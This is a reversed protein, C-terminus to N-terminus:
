ARTGKFKACGCRHSPGVLGGPDTAAVACTRTPTVPGSTAGQKAARAISLFSRGSLSLRPTPDAFIGPLSLGPSVARDPRTQTGVLIQIPFTVRPDLYPKLRRYVGNARAPHGSNAVIVHHVYPMQAARQKYVPRARKPRQRVAQRRTRCKRERVGGHGNGKDDMVPPGGHTIADSLGGVSFLDVPTQRAPEGVRM